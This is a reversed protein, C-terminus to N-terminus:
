VTNCKKVEKRRFCLALFLLVPVGYIGVSGIYHFLKEYSIVTIIDPPLMAINAAMAALLPILPRGSPLDLIRAILYCATYLCIALALMCVIAWLAIMLAEIRQLYRNIYILRTMEFFPLIKEQGVYVGFAMLYVQSYIIKTFAAGGLGYNLAQVATRSTQFERAYIAIIVAGFNIGATTFGHFVANAVGYGQWPVLQDINYFPILLVIVFLMFLVLFPLVMYAVRGIVEMGFYIFVAVSAIYWITVLSFEALPLATLLTNESFERLLLVTNGFFLAIYFLAVLWAVMDGLLRRSADILDGGTRSLVYLLLLMLLLTVGSSITVSIWAAQADDVLRGAMTSLFVRPITVSFVLSVGAAVGMNGGRYSM